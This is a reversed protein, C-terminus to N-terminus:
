GPTHVTASPPAAAGQAFEEDFLRMLYRGYDSKSYERALQQFQAASIFGLRCAIEEVCAVKLGQRDEIAQIFNAAQQMSAPTGTDLWATGRGLNEVQLTGRRLYEMNVDTIELEGRVSPKLNAAIDLVHNDYFYLGTVAWQSRPKAPKEEISVARGQADIEVVGYREPDTVRSAFVTAGAERRAVEHLRMPLTQGYFINDGLALAVRDSGVFDRGLIFAQALGDPSPQAVYTLSLGLPRGDGLLRQFAPQDHPTTIV